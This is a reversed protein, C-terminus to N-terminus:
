SLSLVRFLTSELFFSFLKQVSNSIIKNTLIIDVCKLTIVSLVFNMIIDNVSYQVIDCPDSLSLDHNREVSNYVYIFFIKTEFIASELTQNHTGKKVKLNNLKM